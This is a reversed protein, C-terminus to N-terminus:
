IIYKDGKGDGIIECPRAISSIINIADLTNGLAAEENHAPIIFSLEVAM